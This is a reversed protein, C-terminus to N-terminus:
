VCSPLIMPETVRDNRELQELGGGRVDGDGLQDVLSGGLQGRAGGCFRRPGDGSAPSTHVRASRADRCGCNQVFREFKTLITPAPRRDGPLESAMPHREKM